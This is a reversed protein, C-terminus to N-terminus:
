RAEKSWVRMPGVKNGTAASQFQDLVGNSELIRDREEPMDPKHDVSLQECHFRPKQPGGPSGVAQNRFMYAPSDGVNAVIVYDEQAIM